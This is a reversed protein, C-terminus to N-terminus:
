KESWIIDIEIVNRIVVYKVIGLKINLIWVFVVYEGNVERYVEDMERVWGYMKVGCINLVFM